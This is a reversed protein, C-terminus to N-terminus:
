FRIKRPMGQIGVNTVLGWPMKQTIQLVVNLESDNLYSRIFQYLDKGKIANFWYALYSVQSKYKLSRFVGYIAEEDDNFVGTADWLKEVDSKATAQTLLSVSQVNKIPFSSAPQNWWNPSWYDKNGAANEVDARLKDAELEGKSDKLGLTELLPSVAYKWGLWAGGIYLVPKVWESAQKGSLM